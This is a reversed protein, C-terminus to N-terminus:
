LEQRSVLGVTLYIVQNLDLVLNKKSHKSFDWFDTEKGIEAKVFIRARADTQVTKRAPVSKTMRLIIEIVTQRVNTITM